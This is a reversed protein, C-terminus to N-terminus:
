SNGNVHIKAAQLFFWKTPQLMFEFHLVSGYENDFGSYKINSTQGSSSGIRKYLSPETTSSNTTYMFPRGVIASGIDNGNSLYLLRISQFVVPRDLEFILTVNSINWTHYRYRNIQNNIDLPEYKINEDFLVGPPKCKLMNSTLDVLSCGDYNSNPDDGERYPMCPTAYYCVLAADEVFTSVIYITYGASPYKASQKSARHLKVTSINAM